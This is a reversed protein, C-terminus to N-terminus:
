GLLTTNQNKQVLNRREEEIDLDLLISLIIQFEKLSIFDNHEQNLIDDLISTNSDSLNLLLNRVNEVFCYFDKKTIFGKGSYDYLSFVAEANREYKGGSLLLLASALEVFDVSHEKEFTLFLGTLVDRLMSEKEETLDSTEELITEFVHEFDSRVISGREDSM